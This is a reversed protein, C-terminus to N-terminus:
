NKKVKGLIVVVDFPSKDALNETVKVSYGEAILVDFPSEHALNETVKVFYGDAILKAIKKAVKKNGDKYQVLTKINDKKRSDGIEIIGIKEWRLVDVVGSAEALKGSGSLVKVFPKKKLKLLSRKLEINAKKMKVQNQQFVQFRFNVKLSYISVFVVFITAVVLQKNLWFSVGFGKNAKLAKAQERSEVVMEAIQWLIGIVLFIFAIMAAWSAKAEYNAVLLIGAFGLFGISIAISFRGELRYVFKLVLYVVILYTTTILLGGVEITGLMVTYFLAAIIAELGFYRESLEKVQKM